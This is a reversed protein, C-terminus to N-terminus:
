ISLHNSNGHWSVKMGFRDFPDTQQLRDAARSMFIYGHFEASTKPWPNNSASRSGPKTTDVVNAQTGDFSIGLVKLKQPLMEYIVAKIGSPM